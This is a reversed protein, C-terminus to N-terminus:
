IEFSKKLQNIKKRNYYGLVTQVPGIFAYMLGSIGAYQFGGSTVITISIIGILCNVSCGIISNKTILLEVENLELEAKKRYAHLYLLIFIVYIMVFACGYVTMLTSWQYNEIAPVFSGDPLQVNRSLGSFAKVLYFFLFKLPYVFFLIVFLLAANIWIVTNDELGYRRFYKYHEHWFIFLLGFALAFGISGQITEQLDSFTKPVELSVVLLTLAFGFVNDSFGEIRSVETGRWRFGADKGLNTKLVKTRIM